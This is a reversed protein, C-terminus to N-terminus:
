CMDCLLGFWVPQGALVDFLGDELAAALAPGAGGAQEEDEAILEATLREAARAAAVGPDPAQAAEDLAAIAAKVREVRRAAPALADGIRGAVGAAVDRAGSGAAKLLRAAARFAM